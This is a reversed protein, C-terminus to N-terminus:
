KVPCLERTTRITIHMESGRFLAVILLKAYVLIRFHDRAQDTASLCAPVSAEALDCINKPSFNSGHVLLANESLVVDLTPFPM